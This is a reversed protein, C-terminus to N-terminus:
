FKYGVCKELDQGTGMKETIADKNQEDNNKEKKKSNGNVGIVTKFQNLIYDVMEYDDSTLQGEM